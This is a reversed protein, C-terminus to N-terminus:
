SPSMGFFNSTKCRISVIGTDINVHVGGGCVPAGRACGGCNRAGDAEGHRAGLEGPMGHSTCAGQM